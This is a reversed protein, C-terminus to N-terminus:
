AYSKEGKLTQTEKTQKNAKGERKRNFREKNSNNRRTYSRKKKKKKQLTFKCM